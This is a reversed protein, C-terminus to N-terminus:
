FDPNSIKIDYNKFNEFEKEDTAIRSEVTDADSRLMLREKRINIDIDIYIITSKVRDCLKIQSIGHPTMIFIDDNYFQENTTGYYNGNFEDYEYFEGNNIMQEFKERTLFFYDISDVEGTRPKRSTYSIAYKQGKSEFIRRIHDKGSGAKGTLIIRKHKM